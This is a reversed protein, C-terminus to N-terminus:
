QQTPVPSITWGKNTIITDIGASHIADRVEQSLTLTKGSGNDSLRDAIYLRFNSLFVSGKDTPNWNGLDISSETGEAFEIHILNPTNYFEADTCGGGIAGQKFVEIKGFVIKKLSPCNIAVNWQKHTLSPLNIEELEPCDVALKFGQNNYINKASPLSITKVKPCRIMATNYYGNFSSYGEFSPLEIHEITSSTILDQYAWNDIVKKFKPMNIADFAGGFRCQTTNILEPLDLIPTTINFMSAHYSGKTITKLNPFFVGEPFDGALFVGYGRDTNFNCVISECGLVVKGSLGKFLHHLGLYDPRDYTWGSNNDILSYSLEPESGLLRALSYGDPINDEGNFIRRKTLASVTSAINDNSAPIGLAENGQVRDGILQRFLDALDLPEVGTNGNPHSGLCTLPTQWHRRLISVALPVLEEVESEPTDATQPIDCGTVNHLLRSLAASATADSLLLATMDDAAYEPQISEIHKM